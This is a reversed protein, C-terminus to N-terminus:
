CRKIEGYREATEFKSQTIKKIHIELDRPDFFCESLEIKQTEKSVPNHVLVTCGYIDEGGFGEGKSKEILLYEGGFQKKDYGYVHPTMFNKEGNYYNDFIERITM